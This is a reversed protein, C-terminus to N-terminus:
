IVWISINDQNKLCGNLFMVVLSTPRVFVPPLCFKVQATTASGQDLAADGSNSLLVFNGGSSYFYAHLFNLTPVVVSRANKPLETCM